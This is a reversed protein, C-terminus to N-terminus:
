MDEMPRWHHVVDASGVVMSFFNGGGAPQDHRRDIALGAYHCYLLTGVAGHGVVLLDGGAHQRLIADLESVIREQADVAAEWGRMSKEPEDFFNARLVSFEPEPLYGTESRDNEHMGARVEVDLGLESAVITATEVAKAEGSSAITRTGRLAPSRSLREARDRGQASLRWEPLPVNPNVNVQPHTLYRLIM